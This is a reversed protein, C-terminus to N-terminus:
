SNCNERSIGGLRAEGAKLSNGLELRQTSISKAAGSFAGWGRTMLSQLLRGVVLSRVPKACRFAPALSADTEFAM